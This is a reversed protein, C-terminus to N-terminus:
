KETKQLAQSTRVAVRTLRSHAEIRAPLWASWLFPSHRRKKERKKERKREMSSRDRDRM